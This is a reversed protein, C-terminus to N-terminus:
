IRQKAIIMNNNTRVLANPGSHALNLHATVGGAGSRIFSTDFVNTFGSADKKAAVDYRGSTNVQVAMMAYGEVEVDDYTSTLRVDIDEHTAYETESLDSLIDGTVSDEFEWAGSGDPLYLSVRVTGFNSSSSKRLLPSYSWQNDRDLEFITAFINISTLRYDVDTGANANVFHVPLWLNSTPNFVTPVPSDVWETSTEASDVALVQGATGLAPIGEGADGKAGGVKAISIIGDVSTALTGSSERLGEIEGFIEDDKQLEELATIRISIETFDTGSGRRGRSYNNGILDLTSASGGRVQRIRGKASFRQNDGTNNLVIEYTIGIQYVGAEPIVVRQDGSVTKLTFGGKNLGTTVLGTFVNEWSSNFWSSIQTMSSAFAVVSATPSAQIGFVGESDYGLFKGAEDDGVQSKIYRTISRYNVFYLRVVDDVAGLTFTSILDKSARTLEVNYGLTVTNGDITLSGGELNRFVGAETSWSGGVSKYIVIAQPATSGDITLRVIDSLSLTLNLSSVDDGSASQIEGVTSSLTAKVTFDKTLLVDGVIPGDLKAKVDFTEVLSLDSDLNSLDTELREIEGLVNDADYGLLTNATGSSPVYATVAEKSLFHLRVDNGVSGLSFGDLSFFAKTEDSLYGIFVTRHHELDIATTKYSTVIFEGTKETVIAGELEEHIIIAQAGIAAVEDNHICITLSTLDNGTASQIENRSDPITSVIEFTVAELERGAMSAFPTIDDLKDVDDDTFANTDFNNEYATKIEEDTQDATANTEIADLKQHDDATLVGASVGTAQPIFTDAGTSSNIQVASESLTRSLNTAVNVDAGAEIGDLKTKDAASELGALSATASPIEADTGTSSTIELSDTDRSAVALNTIPLDTEELATGSTNVQLIKGATLGDPTDTLNAFTSATLSYGFRTFHAYGFYRTSAGSAEITFTTDSTRTIIIRTASHSHNRDVVDDTAAFENGIDIIVPASYAVSSSSSVTVTLIDFDDITDGTQFNDFDDSGLTITLTTSNTFSARESAKSRIMHFNVSEDVDGGTPDSWESATEGSSVTLVQGATGLPPLTHPLDDLDVRKIVSSAESDVLLLQDEDVPTAKVPIRRTSVESLDLDVSLDTQIHMSSGQAPQATIDGRLLKCRFIRAYFDDDADGVVTSHPDKVIYLNETGAVSSRLLLRSGAVLRGHWDPQAGTKLQSIVVNLYGDSDETLNFYLQDVGTFDYNSGSRDRFSIPHVHSLPVSTDDVDLKDRELSTIRNRLASQLSEFRM